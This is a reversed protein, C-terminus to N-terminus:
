AIKDYEMVTLESAISEAKDMLSDLKEAVSASFLIEGCQDCRQCPVKKIIVMCNKLDAFYTTFGPEMTGNKCTLCKM